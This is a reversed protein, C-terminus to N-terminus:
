NKNPDPSYLDLPTEKSRGLEIEFEKEQKELADNSAKVAVLTTMYNYQMSKEGFIARTRDLIEDRRQEAPTRYDVGKYNKKDKDRIMIYRNTAQEILAADNKKLTDTMKEVFDKTLADSQLQFTYDGSLDTSLQIAYDIDHQHCFQNILAEYDVNKISGKVAYEENDLNIAQYADKRTEMPIKANPGIIQLVRSINHKDFMVYVYNEDKDAVAAHDIIHSADTGDVTKKYFDLYQEKTFLAVCHAQNKFMLSDVTGYNLYKRDQNEFDKMTPKGESPKGLTDENYCELQFGPLSGSKFDKADKNILRSDVEHQLEREYRKEDYSSYNDQIRNAIDKYKANIYITYSSKEHNTRISDLEKMKEDHLKMYKKIKNSNRSQNSGKKIAKRYEKDILEKYKQIEKQCKNMKAVDAKSMRKSEHEVMRGEVERPEAFLTREEVAVAINKAELEKVIEITDDYDFEGIKFLENTPGDKKVKNMAHEGSHDLIVNVGQKGLWLGVKAGIKSATKLNTMFLRKLLDLYSNWLRRLDDLLKTTEHSDM